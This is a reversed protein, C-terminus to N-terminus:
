RPAGEGGERNRRYEETPNVNNILDLIAMYPTSGQGFDEPLHSYNATFDFTGRRMDGAKTEDIVEIGMVVLEGAWKPTLLTFVDFRALQAETLESTQVSENSM